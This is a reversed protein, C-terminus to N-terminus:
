LKKALKLAVLAEATEEDLEVIDGSMKLTVLIGGSLETRTSVIQISVTEADENKKPRPM